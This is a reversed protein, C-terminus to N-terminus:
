AQEANRCGLNSEIETGPETERTGIHKMLEQFSSALLPFQGVETNILISLTMGTIVHDSTQPMTLKILNQSEHHCPKWSRHERVHCSLFRVVIGIEGGMSGCGVGGGSGNNATALPSWVEVSSSSRRRGTPPGLRANHPM